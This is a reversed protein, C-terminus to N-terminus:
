LTPNSLTYSHTTSESQVGYLVPFLRRSKTFAVRVKRHAQKTLANRLEIQILTETYRLGSNVVVASGMWGGFNFFWRTWFKWSATSIARTLYFTNVKNARVTLLTRM